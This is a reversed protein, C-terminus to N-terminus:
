ARGLHEARDLHAWDSRRAHIGYMDLFAKNCEVYMGDSLRNLNISDLSMQFAKRYREESLRLAEQAAALQEEAQKRGNIDQVLTLFFLPQGEKDHQISITLM